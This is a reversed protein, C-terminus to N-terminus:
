KSVPYYNLPQEVTVTGGGLPEPFKIGRLVDLVCRKVAAPMSSQKQIGAKTVTGAAGIDFKLDIVGSFKESSKDLVKQYCYQFQPIHDRLIRRIIDPDISGLVVTRSPIGATFVNTKKGLGEAGKSSDLKGQTAGSLNGANGGIKARNPSGITDGGGSIKGFGSSGNNSGSNASQTTAGKTSGGKALLSSISSSFDISKYVEVRGKSPLKKPVL